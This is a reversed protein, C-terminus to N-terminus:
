SVEAESPLCAPLTIDDLPCLAQFAIGEQKVLGGTGPKLPSATYKIRPMDFTAADGAPRTLVARYAGETGALFASRLASSTFWQDFTVTWNSWERNPNDYITTVGALSPVEELMNDFNLTHNKTVLTAALDGGVTPAISFAAEAFGYPTLSGDVFTLDLDGGTPWAGDTTPLSSGQLDLEAQVYDIGADLKISGSKVKVDMYQEVWENSQGLNIVKIITAYYGQYNGTGNYRGWLWNYLDGAGVWGPSLPVVIKGEIKNGRNAYLAIGRYGGGSQFFNYDPSVDIDCDEKTPIEVFSTAVAGKNTQLGFCIRAEKHSAWIPGNYAM